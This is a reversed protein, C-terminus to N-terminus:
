LDGDSGWHLKLHRESNNRTLYKSAYMRETLTHCTTGEHEAWQVTTASGSSQTTRMKVVLCLSVVSDNTPGLHLKPHRVPNQLTLYKSPYVRESLTQPAEHEATCNCYARFKTYLKINPRWKTINVVLCSSFVSDNTSSLHLKPHFLVNGLM